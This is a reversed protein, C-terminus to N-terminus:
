WCESSSRCRRQPAPTSPSCSHRWSSRWARWTNSSGTSSAPSPAKASCRRSIGSCPTPALPLANLTECATVIELSPLTIMCTVPQSNVPALGSSKRMPEEVQPFARVGPVFQRTVTRKAGCAAPARAAVSWIASVAGPASPGPASITYCTGISVTGSAARRTPRLASVTRRQIRVPRRRESFTPVWCRISSTSSSRRPSLGVGSSTGPPQPTSGSPDGAGSQAVTTRRARSRWQRQNEVGADSEPRTAGLASELTQVVLKDRRPQHPRFAGRREAARHPPTLNRGGHRRRHEIEQVPRRDRWAGMRLQVGSRKPDGGLEPPRLGVVGLVDSQSLQELGLDYGQIGPKPAARVAQAHDDREVLESPAPGEEWIAAYPRECPGPLDSRAGINPAKDTAWRWTWESYESSSPAQRISESASRAAEEPWGARPRVSWPTM